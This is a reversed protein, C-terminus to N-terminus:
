ATLLVECITNNPRLDIENWQSPLDHHQPERDGEDMPSFFGLKVWHHSCCLTLYGTINRILSPVGWTMSVGRRTAVVSPNSTITM